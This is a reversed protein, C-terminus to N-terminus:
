KQIMEAAKDLALLSGITSLSSGERILKDKLYSIMQLYKDSSIYFKPPNVEPRQEYERKITDFAAELEMNKRKLVNNEDQLQKIKEELAEYAKKSIM